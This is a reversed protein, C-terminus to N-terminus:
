SQSDDAPKTEQLSRAVDESRQTLSAARQREPVDAGYALREVAAALQHVEPALPGQSAAATERHTRTAAREPSGLVGAAVPAFAEAVQWRLNRLRVHARSWEGRHPVVLQASSLEYGDADVQLTLSGEALSQFQFEGHEDTRVECRLAAGDLVRVRVDALPRADRSDEVLGGLDHFSRRRGRTEGASVRSAPTGSDETSAPPRKSRRGRGRTGWVLLLAMALLPLALGLWSWSTHPELLLEVPASAADPRGPGESEYRARVTFSGQLDPPVSLTVAYHGTEDTLRTAWHHGAAFLGVARRGLGGTSDFLRGHLHVESDQEVSTSDTELTLEIPRFRIV